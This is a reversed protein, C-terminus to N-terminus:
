KSRPMSARSAVSSWIVISAAFAILFCPTPTLHAVMVGSSARTSSNPSFFIHFDGFPVMRLMKPPTMKRSGITILLMGRSTGPQVFGITIPRWANPSWYRAVSRLTGPSPVRVRVKVGLSPVSGISSSTKSNGLGPTASAIYM